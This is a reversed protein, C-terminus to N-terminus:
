SFLLSLRLGVQCAAPPGETDRFGACIMSDRVRDGWFKKQRCTKFDIIPLRAQNLAEALSVNEKGGSIHGLSVNVHSTADKVTSMKTLLQYNHGNHQAKRRGKYLLTCVPSSYLIWLVEGLAEQVRKGMKEGGGVEGSVGHTEGAPWGATTDRNSTPRSARCAPMASSTLPYFTRPLKWWPSTTTWSTTRQTVSTKMATSESWQFSRRQCRQGRWSTSGWSSGGAGLMRRNGGSLHYLSNFSLSPNHKVEVIIWLATYQIHKESQPHLTKSRSATLLLLSGTRISLLGEVYMSIINAEGPVFRLSLPLSCGSQGDQICCNLHEESYVVFM